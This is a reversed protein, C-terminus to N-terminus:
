VSTAEVGAPLTVKELLVRVTQVTVPRATRATLSPVQTILADWEPEVRYLAAAVTLRVMFM